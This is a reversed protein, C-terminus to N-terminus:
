VRAASISKEYNSGLLTTLHNYEAAFVIENLKVPLKTIFGVEKNKYFIRGRGDIAFQRDFAVVKQKGDRCMEYAKHVDPYKGMICDALEISTLSQLYTTIFNAGNKFLFGKGIVVKLNEQSLGVKYRRIPIRSLYAVGDQINCYGLRQTPASWKEEDIPLVEERQTLLNRCTAERGGSIRTIHYPKNKYMCVSELFMQKLDELSARTM